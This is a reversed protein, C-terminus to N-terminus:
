SLGKLYYAFGDLREPVGRSNRSCGLIMLQRPLRTRTSRSHKVPRWTARVAIYNRGSRFPSLCGRLILFSRFPLPLADCRRFRGETGYRALSSCPSVHARLVRAIIGRGEFGAPARRLRAIPLEQRMRMQMSLLFWRGGGRKKIRSWRMELMVKWGGERRRRKKEVETIEREKVHRKREM